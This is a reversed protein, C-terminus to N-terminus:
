IILIKKLLMSKNRILKESIFYQVVRVVNNAAADFMTALLISVHLLIENHSLNPM